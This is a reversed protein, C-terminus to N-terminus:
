RVLRLPFAREFSSGTSCTSGEDEVGSVMVARDCAQSVRRSLLLLTGAWVAWVYWPQRGAVFAPVM